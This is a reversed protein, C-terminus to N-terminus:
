SLRGVSAIALLSFVLLDFLTTRTTLAVSKPNLVLCSILTHSVGRSEISAGVKIIVSDDSFIHLKIIDHHTVIVATKNRNNEPIIGEQVEAMQSQM